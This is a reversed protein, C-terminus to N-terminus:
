SRGQGEVADRWLAGLTGEVVAAAPAAEGVLAAARPGYVANSVALAAARPLDGLTLHREAVAVGAARAGELLLARAIGPLVRGDLPPTTWVGDLRVWLNATATELVTGDRDVVIGDDAGGDQAQQLVADYFARPAAKLDAPPASAPREVVTPLLRVRSLPARARTTMVISLGKGTPVLQLKLMGDAHGNDLLLPASAARLEPGPAFPLGLRRAAGQLRALHRDWLAIAADKAGMTEFPAVAGPAPQPVAAATVDRGDIWAMM